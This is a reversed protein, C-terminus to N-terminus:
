AEAMGLYRDKLRVYHAASYRLNELEREDLKRVCRAPNGLWLEGQGVTKGPSVLARAGVFGYDEVTAGDMITAGMGILCFDGIRCGHLIVGHGITTDSGIVTAFGGPRTFPGDHTVHVISGDQVSTRAGVRISNVDGRLVAGPWISVDDGLEVDGIVSAAPDVYVRAGLVPATQLFPRLPSM